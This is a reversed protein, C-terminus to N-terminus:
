KSQADTYRGSPIQMSMKFNFYQGDAQQIISGPVERVTTTVVAVIM